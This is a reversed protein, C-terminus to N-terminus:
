GLAPNSRSRHTACDLPRALNPTSAVSGIWPFHTTRGTRVTGSKPDRDACSEPNSNSRCEVLRHAVAESEVVEQTPSTASVLSMSQDITIPAKKNQFLHTKLESLASKVANQNYGEITEDDGLM